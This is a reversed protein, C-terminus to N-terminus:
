EEGTLHRWDLPLPQTGDLGDVARRAVGYVTGELEAFVEDMVSLTGSRIVRDDVDVWSAVFDVPAGRLALHAM